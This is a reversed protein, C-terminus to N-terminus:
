AEPSSTAAIVNLLKKLKVSVAQQKDQLENLKKENEPNPNKKINAIDQELKVLEIESQMVEKGFKEPALARENSLLVFEHAIQDIKNCYESNDGIERCHSLEKELKAPHSMLYDYSSSGQCGIVVLICFSISFLKKM